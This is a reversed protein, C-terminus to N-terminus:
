TGIRAYERNQDHEAFAHALHIAFPVAIVLLSEALEFLPSRGRLIAIRSRRIAGGSAKGLRGRNVWRNASARGNVRVSM